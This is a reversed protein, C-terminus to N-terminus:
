AKRGRFGGTPHKRVEQKQHSFGVGQQSLKTGGRHELSGLFANKERKTKM